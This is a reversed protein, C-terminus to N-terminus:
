ATQNIQKNHKKHSSCAGGAIYVYHCVRKRCQARGIQGRKIGTTDALDGAPTPTGHANISGIDSPEIGADRIANRMCRAGGEGNESPATMHFADGRMGFGALEAYIRAGRAKAREYEEIVLIGAGDGM